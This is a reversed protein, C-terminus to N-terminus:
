KSMRGIAVQCAPEETLDRGQVVMPFRDIKMGRSTLYQYFEQSSWERVHYVNDPPGDNYRDEADRSPTSIVITTNPNANKSINEMLTDPNELHEIVDACVILGYPPDFKRIEASLDWTYAAGSEPDIDVTDVWEAVPQLFEKVKLGLGSGLDLVRVKGAYEAALVYVMTQFFYSHGVSGDYWRVPNTEYSAPICYPGTKIKMM